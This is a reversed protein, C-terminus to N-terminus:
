TCRIWSPLYYYISNTSPPTHFLFSHPFLENRTKKRGATGNANSQHHRADAVGEGGVLRVQNVLPLGSEDRRSREVGSREAGKRKEKGRRRVM